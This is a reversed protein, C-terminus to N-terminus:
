HLAVVVQKNTQKQKSKLDTRFVVRKNIMIGQFNLMLNCDKKLLFSQLTLFFLKIM